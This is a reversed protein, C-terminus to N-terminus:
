VFVNYEQREINSYPTFLLNLLIFVFNNGANDLYTVLTFLIFSTIFFFVFFRMFISLITRNLIFYSVTDPLYCYLKIQLEIVSMLFLM